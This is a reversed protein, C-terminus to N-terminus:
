GYIVHYLTKDHPSGSPRLLFGKPLGRRADHSTESANQALTAGSTGARGLRGVLRLYRRLGPPPRLGIATRVTNSAITYTSRVPQWHFASGLSRKPLALAMWLRKRSHSRAPKKTAKHRVPSASYSSISPM